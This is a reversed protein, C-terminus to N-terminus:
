QLKCPMRPTTTHEQEPKLLFQYQEFCATFIHFLREILYMSSGFDLPTWYTSHIKSKQFAIYLLKVQSPSYPHTGFWQIMSVESLHCSWKIKHVNKGVSLCTNYWFTTGELGFTDKNLFLTEM